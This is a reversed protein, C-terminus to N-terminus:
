MWDDTRATLSRGADRQRATDAVGADWARATNAVGADWAPAINAIGADWAPATNAVGADWAPPTNAIGADWARSILSSGADTRATRGIGADWRGSGALDTQPQMNAVGRRVGEVAVASGIVAVVQITTPTTDRVEVREPKGNAGEFTWSTATEETVREPAEGQMPSALAHDYFAVAEDYGLPIRYLHDAGSMGVARTGNTTHGPAPFFHVDDLQAASVLMAGQPLPVGFPDPAARESTLAKTGMAEAASEASSSSSLPQPARHARGCGLAVATAAGVAFLPTLSHFKM